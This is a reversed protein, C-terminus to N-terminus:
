LFKKLADIHRQEMELLERALSHSTETAYEANNILRNIDMIGQNDGQIVMDAINESSDDMLTNMGIATKLMLNQMATASEPTDGLAIIEGSIKSALAEFDHYENLLEQKISDDKCKPLLKELAYKGMQVNKHLEKLFDANKSSKEM